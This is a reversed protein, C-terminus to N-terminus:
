VSFYAKLVKQQQRGQSLLVPTDQIAQRIVASLHQHEALLFQQQTRYYEKEGSSCDPPSAALQRYGAVLATLETWQQAEALAQLQRSTEALQTLWQAYGSM